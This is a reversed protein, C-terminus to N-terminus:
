FLQLQVAPKAKPPGMDAGYINIIEGYQKDTILLIAIHGENAHMFSQVRKVQARASELSAAHRIYVSFQMMYFGSKILNDRFKAAKKRQQKTETPLDFFVFVWM